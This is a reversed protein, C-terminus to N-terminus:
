RAARAITTELIDVETMVQGMFQHTAVYRLRVLDGAVNYTKHIDTVTCERKNRGMYKHGIQFRPEQDKPLAM